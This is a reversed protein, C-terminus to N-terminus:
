SELGSPLPAETLGRSLAGHTKDWEPKCSTHLYIEVELTTNAMSRRLCVGDEEPVVEHCLACRFLSKSM